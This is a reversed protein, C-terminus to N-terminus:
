LHLSKFYGVQRLTHEVVNNVSATLIQAHILDANYYVNIMLIHM